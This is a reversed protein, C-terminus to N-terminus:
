ASEEKPVPDTSPTDGQKITYTMGDCNDYNM